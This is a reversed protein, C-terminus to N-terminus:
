LTMQLHEQCMAHVPYINPQRRGILVRLAVYLQGNLSFIVELNQECM